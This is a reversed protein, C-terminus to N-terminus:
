WFSRTDWTERKKSGPKPIMRSYQARTLGLKKLQAASALGKDFKKHCTPCMPLVQSGGKSTAKIHAKQLEGVAKETKGCLVCKNEHSKKISEWELKSIRPRKPKEEGFLGLDM